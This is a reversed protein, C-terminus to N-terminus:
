VSCATAVAVAIAGDAELAFAQNSNGIEFSHQPGRMYMFM